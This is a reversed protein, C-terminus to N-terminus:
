VCLSIKTKSFINHSKLQRGFNTTVKNQKSFFESIKLLNDNIFALDVKLHDDDVWVEFYQFFVSDTDHVIDSDM